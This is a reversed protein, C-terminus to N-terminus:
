HCNLTKGIIKLTNQPMQLSHMASILLFCKTKNDKVADNSVDGKQSHPHKLHKSIARQTAARSLRHLQISDKRVCNLECWSPVSGEANWCLLESPLWTVGLASSPATQHCPALEQPCHQTSCPTHTGQKAAIGYFMGQPIGRSRAQSPLM